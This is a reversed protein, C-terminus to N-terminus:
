RLKAQGFTDADPSYRPPQAPEPNLLLVFNPVRDALQRDLGEQPEVQLVEAVWRGPPLELIRSADASYGNIYEIGSVGVMGKSVFLYPSSRREVRTQAGPAFTAPAALLVVLAPKRTRVM